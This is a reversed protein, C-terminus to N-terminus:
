RKRMRDKKYDYNPDYDIKGRLEFIRMQRKRQETSATENQKPKPPVQRKDKM